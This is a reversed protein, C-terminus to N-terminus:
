EGRGRGKDGRRGEMGTGEKVRMREGKKKDKRRRKGESGREGRMGGGLSGEIAQHQAQTHAQGPHDGLEGVACPATGDRAEAGGDDAAHM